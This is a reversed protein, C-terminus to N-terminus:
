KMVVMHYHSPHTSNVYSSFKFYRKKHNGYLTYKKNSKFTNFSEQKIHMLGGKMERARDM